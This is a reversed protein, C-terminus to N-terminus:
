RVKRITAVRTGFDLTDRRMALDRLFCPRLQVGFERSGDFVKAPSSSVPQFYPSRAKLLVAGAQERRSRNYARALALNSM